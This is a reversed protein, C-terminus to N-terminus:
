RARQDLRNSPESSDFTSKIRGSDLLREFAAGARGPDLGFTTAIAKTLQEETFAVDDTALVHEVAAWLEDDSLM